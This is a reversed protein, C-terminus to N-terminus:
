QHRIFRIMDALEKPSIVEGFNSPMLSRGAEKRREIAAPDIHVVKGSPDLLTIENESETRVLGIIVRGDDMLFSTTRFAKDVNHDPTIVDELLRQVSRTVAGDLQPGVVTGEGRLQHCAACHKKFIQGGNARDGKGTAITQQLRRLLQKQAASSDVNAILSQLEKQQDNDLRPILTQRVNIDALAAPSIWGEQCLQLLLGADAGAGAWALAFDRQQNATLEKALTQINPLLQESRDNLAASIAGDVWLQGATSRHLHALLVAAEAQQRLSVVTAAVEIRLLPSLHGRDLYGLLRNQQDKLDLRKIWQTATLLSKNQSLNMVWSPEFRGIALWAYAKASDRDICEIRVQRGQLSSTKWHVQRAVDNRPPFAVHLVDGTTADVLRVKNKQHDEEKPFGNHGALWFRIEDPAAFPDSRLVGTYSEGRGISDVLQVEDGSTLRRNRLPWVGGDATTWAVATALSSRQDFQDLKSEVLESAWRRLPAAAGGSKANRSDAMLQLLQFQSDENVALRKAIEVCRALTQDTAHHAVHRLIEDRQAAQRHNPRSLYELLPPLMEPRQLGLMISASDAGATRRWIPSDSPASQYLDRLTIRLTQRLVPDAPDCRSLASYLADVDEPKGFRRLSETAAQVVMADTENLAAIAAQRFEDSEELLTTAQRFAEVRVRPQKDDSLTVLSAADLRGATRLAQMAAVRAFPKEQPNSMVAIAAASDAQDSRGALRRRTPNTSRLGDTQNSQASGTYRIQWIRGSTRDRGPHDLPVEYHGIIRNYFDAVYIHGDPGLQLDVPRFWPDDSTMFDPQETGRATAGTYTVRNRNLRSTMVNGSILQHRLPTVNSEPPFHLIGCIATSGHLHDIMPPVFGLGDHPRGFSPYCGGRILQTIPKSHCDASYRFGWQDETMGFPNVQGHTVVEVRSGDPRFRFTNGSPLRVTHGDTGAVESQNNFGHCAYIWGDGGDSMANIMGHTDRTTDFPGLIVERRDCVGDGNTDRLYLINPISFCLCGDGYPLIGIPINLKDAFQTVKDATGDGDTDELVMVADSADAENKAPYPYEVSQSVWMRGRADFAMNLPKAIQPECAFLRVEFGPPLHFGEREEQPSRWDTSRVGQGYIAPDTSPEAAAPLEDGRLGGATVLLIFIAACRRGIELPALQFM